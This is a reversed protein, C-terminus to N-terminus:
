AKMQYIHDLYKTDLYLVRLKIPFVPSFAYTFLNINFTNQDNSFFILLGFLPSICTIRVVPFYFENIWETLLSPAWAGPATTTSACLVTRQVVQHPPVSLLHRSFGSRSITTITNLFYSLIILSLIVKVTKNQQIKKGKKTTTSSTLM